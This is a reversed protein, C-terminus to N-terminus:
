ERLFYNFCVSTKQCNSLWAPGRTNRVFFLLSTKREGEKEASAGGPPLPFGGGTDFKLSSVSSRKCEDWDVLKVVSNLCSVWVRHASSRLLRAVCLAFVLLYMYVFLVFVSVYMCLSACLKMISNQTIHKKEWFKRRYIARSCKMTTTKMWWWM